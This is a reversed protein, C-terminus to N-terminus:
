LTTVCKASSRASTKAQLPLITQAQLCYKAKHDLGKLTLKNSCCNLQFVEEAGSTNTVYVKYHINSHLKRVLARPPKVRVVVGHETFNLRLAPPSITTDWRPSFRPSLTWASRSSSATSSARVRAYYWERPESTVASLDCHHKQVGQCGDVDLWDAEGYIKWQVDYHLSSSNAAPTWHLVNRYDTSNFRVQAPRALMVQAMICVSLNGLLVVGLLLRSM